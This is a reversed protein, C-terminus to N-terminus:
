ASEKLMLWVNRGADRTGYIPVRAVVVAGDDIGEEPIGGKPIRYLLIRNMPKGQLYANTIDAVKVKVGAQAAWSLVLSHADVDATPSYTRIGDTDEFNGCGVLRSKLLRPVKVFDKDRRKHASKDTEIWQTPFVKM